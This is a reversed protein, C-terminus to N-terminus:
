RTNEMTVEPKQSIALIKQLIDLVEFVARNNIAAVNDRYRAFIKPQLLKEVAKQIDRFSHLVLGVEKLQIWEANYREQIMTSSNCEVIVPLKMAIAESISGPGPKGIFFDALQMYYPVDDTFTTIFRKQTGQYQRLEQALAENRGCIFILQLQESLSELRKSIDKMVPSGNGGFLVLGTMRDPDLGLRQREQQRMSQSIPARDDSQSPYFNPHIVLGSTQIIQEAAIGLSRAQEVAKDTGCVFYNSTSPEFWFNPPCDAFDTLITVVPTNPKVRQISEWIVRNFLPMVSLVLDPQQEYWHQEFLRVGMKYNLRVLWKNLRMLMPWLWTWGSRLMWNYLDHASVGFVDYANNLQNQQSLQTIIEDMDLVQFQWPLKQQEAIVRIARYTAYHGGGGQGTIVNISCIKKM